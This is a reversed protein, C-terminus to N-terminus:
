KTPDHLVHVNYGLNEFQSIKQEGKKVTQESMAKFTRQDYVQLRTSSPDEMKQGNQLEVFSYHRVVYHGAPVKLKSIDYKKEEDLNGFQIGATSEQSKKGAASEQGALIAEIMEEDSLGEVASEGALENYKELLQEPTL